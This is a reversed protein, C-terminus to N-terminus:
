EEHIEENQATQNFERDFDNQGYYGHQKRFVKDFHDPESLTDWHSSLLVEQEASQNRLTQSSSNTDISMMSLSENQSEYTGTQTTDFGEHPFLTHQNQAARPAFTSYSYQNYNYHPSNWYSQTSINQSQPRTVFNQGHSYDALLHDQTQQFTSFIPPRQICNLNADPDATNGSHVCSPESRGPAAFPNQSVSSIVQKASDSNKKAVANAAETKAKTSGEPRGARRRVPTAAAADHEAIDAVRAARDEQSLNLTEIWELLLERQFRMAAIRVLARAEELLGGKAAPRLKRDAEWLVTVISGLHTSLASPADAICQLPNSTANRLQDQSRSLIVLLFETIETHQYKTLKGAYGFYSAIAAFLRNTLETLSHHHETTYSALVDHAGVVFDIGRMFLECSQPTIKQHPINEPTRRMNSVDPTSVQQSLSPYLTTFQAQSFPIPVTTVNSPGSTPVDQMIVDTAANSRQSTENHDCGDLSGMAEVYQEDRHEESIKGKAQSRTKM